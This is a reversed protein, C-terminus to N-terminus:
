QRTAHVAEFASNYKASNRTAEAQQQKDKLIQIAEDNGTLMLQPAFTWMWGDKTKEPKNLQLQQRAQRLVTEKFGAKRAAEEVERAKYPVNPKFNHQVFLKCSDVRSTVAKEQQPTLDDNEETFAEKVTVDAYSNDWVIRSTRVLKGNTAQVECSEVTFSYAAVDGSSYNGKQQILVRREHDTPHTGVLLVSRPANGFAASGSIRSLLQKEGSNKNPHMIGIVCVGIENAFEKVKHLLARVDAEKHADVKGLYATMPDIIVAAAGGHKVICRKLRELDDQLNVLRKTKKKKTDADPVNVADVIFIKSTDAGAADLRLMIANEAEDEANLIFVNGHARLEEGSVPIRKSTTTLASALWMSLQSKGLNARGVLVTLANRPLIDEWIWEFERREITDGRRVILDDEAPFAADNFRTQQEPAHISGVPASTDTVNLPRTDDPQMSTGNDNNGQNFNVEGVLEVEPVNLDRARALSRQMYDKRHAKKRKGLGSQMFLRHTQNTDQSYFYLLNLLAQDAESQSPYSYESNDGLVFEVQADNRKGIRATATAQWLAKFLAGNVANAATNLVEDDTRGCPKDAIDFQVTSGGLEEYLINVLDTCDTVDSTRQMADRPPATFYDADHRMGTFTFFRGSNYLEISDRRKGLKTGTPVSAKCIIHVGRGSPSFETYSNFAKYIREQVDSAIAGEAVDLDIGVFPDNDSFVFGIGDFNPIRYGCTDADYVAVRGLDEWSCWTTNTDSKALEGNLQYPVKDFKGNGRPVLRYVLWNPYQQLEVPIYQPYFVTM